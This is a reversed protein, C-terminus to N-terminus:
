ECYFEYGFNKRGKDICEKLTSSHGYSGASGGIRLIWGTNDEKVIMGKVVDGVKAIIPTCKNVDNFSIYGDKGDMIIKRM